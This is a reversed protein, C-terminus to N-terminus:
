RNTAVVSVVHGGVGNVGQATVWLEQGNSSVSLGVPWPPVKISATVTWTDTDIETVTSASHVAAYIFKGNPALAITRVGGPLHLSEAKVHTTAKNKVSEIVRNFSVRSVAMGKTSSMYLTNGDPSVQLHRSPEPAGHWIGLEKAAITDVISIGGGGMRAVALYRGDKTYALGRLCLGCQVDRDTIVEPPTYRTGGIVIEAKRSWESPKESSADWLHVTNDGWNAIAVQQTQPSWEIMKPVPGTDLTRVIKFTTADVINVFSNHRAGLDSTYRYSTIWLYKGNHTAVGEVPKGSRGQNQINVEGEILKTTTNYIVSHGGELAQIWAKDNLIVVSKPSVLSPNPTKGNPGFTHTLELGASMSGLFCVTLLLVLNKM